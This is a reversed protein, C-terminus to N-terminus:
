IGEALKIAYRLGQCRNHQCSECAAYKAAELLAEQSNVCRVIFAVNAEAEGESVGCDDEANYALFIGRGIVASPEKKEEISQGNQVWPTPTHNVKKTETM